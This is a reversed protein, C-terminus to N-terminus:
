IDAVSYGCSLCQTPFVVCISDFDSQLLFDVGVNLVRTMDLLCVNESM